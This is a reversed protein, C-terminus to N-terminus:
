RAVKIDLGYGSQCSMLSPLCSSFLAGFLSSSVGSTFFLALLPVVLLSGPKRLPTVSFTGTVLASTPTGMGATLKVDCQFPSHLSLVAVLILVSVGVCNTLHEVLASASLWGVLLELSITSLVSLRLVSTSPAEFM